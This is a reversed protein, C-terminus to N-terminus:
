RGPMGQQRMSEMLKKRVDPPLNEMGAIGGGGGGPPGPPPAVKKFLDLPKEYRTKQFKGIAYVAAEEAGQAYFQEAAKDDAKPVAGGFAMRKKGGDKTFLTITTDAKNLGTKAPEDDFRKQAKVRGLASLKGEVTAADFEFGAPPTAPQTLTWAGDTRTVEVTGGPGVFVAREIDAPNFRALRLDRLELKPKVLNNVAYQGILYLQDDGEMMAYVRKKDDTDGFRATIIAGDATQATVKGGTAGAGLGVDAPTKDDVLESARLNAVSTAIRKLADEDAVFGEPLSVESALRWSSKTVAAEGEGETKDYSEVAYPDGTAPTVLIKKLADSKADVLKRKRWAKVDKKALSAFRGKGVFVEDTGALRLYNGGGKAARGFIVDLNAAGDQEIKVRLGKEDTLELEEHKAARATVFADAELDPLAGIASDVAAQDVAFKKPGGPEAVQWTDGTKTLVANVPGSLEIGVVKDKDVSPLTLHRMGVSVQDERTAVVLVLLAAFISVSIWANKSMLREERARSSTSAAAARKDRAGVFSAM